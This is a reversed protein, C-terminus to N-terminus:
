WTSSGKVNKLMKFPLILTGGDLSYPGNQKGQEMENFSISINDGSIKYTGKDTVTTGPMAAKLDFSGNANFNISITAGSKPSQGDSEKVLIYRGSISQAFLITGSIIISLSLFLKKIM